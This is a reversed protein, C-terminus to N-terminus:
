EFISEDVPEGESIIAEIEIEWENENVQLIRGTVVDGPQLSRFKHINSISFVTLTDMEIVEYIRDENNLRYVKFTKSM